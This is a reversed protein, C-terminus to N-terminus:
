SKEVNQVGLILSKAKGTIIQEIKSDTWDRLYIAAKWHIGNDRLIKYRLKRIEKEEKTHHQRM